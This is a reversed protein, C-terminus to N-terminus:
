MAAAAYIFIISQYAVWGRNGSYRQSLVTKACVCVCMPLVYLHVGRGIARAGASTRLHLALAASVQGARGSCVSGFITGAQSVSTLCV